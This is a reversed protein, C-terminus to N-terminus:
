LPYINKKCQPNSEFIINIIDCFDIDICDGCTNLGKFEVCKRIECIDGCYKSKLGETRCGMCNIDEFTLGPSNFLHCCKITYADKLKRNKKITVKRAECEQCEIGCCAILKKM